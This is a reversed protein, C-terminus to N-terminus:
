KYVLSFNPFIVKELPPFVPITLSFRWSRVLTFNEAFFQVLLLGCQDSTLGIFIWCVSTGERKGLTYRHFTIFHLPPNSISWVKIVTVLFRKEDEEHM